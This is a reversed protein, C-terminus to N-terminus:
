VDKKGCSFCWWTLSFYIISWSVTCQLIHFVIPPHLLLWYMAMSSVQFDSLQEQSLAGNLASIIVANNLEQLKQVCTTARNKGVDDESFYFNSALDWLEVKGEDHLTISKVGALVLNKAVLLFLFLLLDDMILLFPFLVYFYPFFLSHFVVSWLTCTESLPMQLVLLPCHYCCCFYVIIIPQRHYCAYQYFITAKKPM